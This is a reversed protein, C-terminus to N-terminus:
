IGHAGTEFDNVRAALEPCPQTASFGFCCLSLDTGCLVQTGNLLV